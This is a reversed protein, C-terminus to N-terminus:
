GGRGERNDADNSRSSGDSGEVEGGHGLAGGGEAALDQRVKKSRARRSTWRDSPQSGTRCFGRGRYRITNGDEWSSEHVDCEPFLQQEM